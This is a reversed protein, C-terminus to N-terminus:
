PQKNKPKIRYACGRKRFLVVLKSVPRGTAKTIEKYTEGAEYRRVCEDDRRKRAARREAVAQAKANKRIRAATWQEKRQVGVGHRETVGSQVLIQRVRERSIKFESAVEGLSYGALYMECAKANRENKISSSRHGKRYITVGIAKLHRSLTDSNMKMDAAIESLTEGAQYRANLVFMDLPRQRKDTSFQQVHGHIIAETEMWEQSRM